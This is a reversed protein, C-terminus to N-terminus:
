LPLFSFILPKVNQGAPVEPRVVSRHWAELAPPPAFSAITEGTM